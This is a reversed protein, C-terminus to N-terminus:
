RRTPQSQDIAETLPLLGNFLQRLSGPEGDWVRRTLKTQERFSPDGSRPTIRGVDVVSERVFGDDAEPERQRFQRTFVKRLDVAGDFRRQRAGIREFGDALLRSWTKSKSTAGSSRCYGGRM